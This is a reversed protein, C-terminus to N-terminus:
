DAMLVSGCLLHWFKLKGFLLLTTMTLESCLVLTQGLIILNRRDMRDSIVGGIPAIFFMPVAVAVMVTGLALESQTLKFALWARVIGQSGM